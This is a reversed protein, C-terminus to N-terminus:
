KLDCLLVQPSAFELSTTEQAFLNQPVIGRM